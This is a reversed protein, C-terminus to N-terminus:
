KFRTIIERAMDTLDEVTEEFQETFGSKGRPGLTSTLIDLDSLDFAQSLNKELVSKSLRSFLAYEPNKAAIERLVALGRENQTVAKAHTDGAGSKVQLLEIIKSKYGFPMIHDRKQLVVVDLETVSHWLKGEGERFKGAQRALIMVKGQSEQRRMDAMNQYGRHIAQIDLWANITTAATETHLRLCEINAILQVKLGKKEYRAKTQAFALEEALQGRIGVENGAKIMEQIEPKTHFGAEILLKLDREKAQASLRQAKQKATFRVANKALAMPLNDGMKILILLVQSDSQKKQQLLNLGQQEISTLMAKYAELAASASYSNAILLSGIESEALDAMQSSFTLSLSLNRFLSNLQRLFLKENGEPEGLLAKIAKFGALSQGELGLQQARFDALSLKTRQIV